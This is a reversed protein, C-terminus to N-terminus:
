DHDIGNTSTSGAPHTGRHPHRQLIPSLRVPGEGNERALLLFRGLTRAAVERSIRRGRGRNREETIPLQHVKHLAVVNFRSFSWSNGGLQLSSKVAETPGVDRDSPLSDRNANQCARWLHKSSSRM